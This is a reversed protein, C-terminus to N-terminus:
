SWENARAPPGNVVFWLLCAAPGRLVPAGNTRQVKICPHPVEVTRVEPHGTKAFADDDSLRLMGRFRSGSGGIGLCGRILSLRFRM